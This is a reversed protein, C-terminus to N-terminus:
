QPGYDPFNLFWSRCVLHILYLHESENHICVSQNLSKHPFSKAENNKVELTISPFSLSQM